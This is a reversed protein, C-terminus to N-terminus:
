EAWGIDRINVEFHSCCMGVPWLEKLAVEVEVLSAFDLCFTRQECELVKSAM